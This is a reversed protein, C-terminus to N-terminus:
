PCRSSQEIVPVRAVLSGCAPSSRMTISGPVGDALDCLRAVELLRYTPKTPPPSVAVFRSPNLLNKRSPQSSSRRLHGATRRRITPRM